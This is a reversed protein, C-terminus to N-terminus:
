IQNRWDNLENLLRQREAHAADLSVVEVWFDIGFRGFDAGLNGPNANGRDLQRNPTFSRRMIPQMSTTMGGVLHDVCETHLDRSFAQFHSALLLISGQYIQQATFRRAGAAAGVPAVATRIARLAPVRQVNWTRYAISPM